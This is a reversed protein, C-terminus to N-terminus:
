NFHTARFQSKCGNSYAKFILKFWVLVIRGLATFRLFLELAKVTIVDREEAFRQRKSYFLIYQYLFAM